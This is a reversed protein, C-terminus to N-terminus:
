AAGSRSALADLVEAYAPPVTVDVVLGGAARNVTFTFFSCCATERVILDEIEATPDLVWRLRTPGLRQQATLATRFLDDFEALRLPRDATPLTCADPVWTTM